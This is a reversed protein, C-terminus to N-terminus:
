ITSSEGHPCTRLYSKASLVGHLPSSLYEGPLLLPQWEEGTSQDSLHPPPFMSLSWSVVGSFYGECSPLKLHPQLCEEKAVMMVKNDLQHKHLGLRMSSEAEAQRGEHM